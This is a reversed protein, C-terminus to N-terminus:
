HNMKLVVRQARSKLWNMVQHLTFSNIECNPLKDMLIVHPITLSATSFYLFILHVAKRKDVLSLAKNYFSILNTLCSEHVWM